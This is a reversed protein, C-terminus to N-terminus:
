KECLSFSCLWYLAVLPAVGSRLVLYLAHPILKWSFHSLCEHSAIFPSVCQVVRQRSVGRFGDAEWNRENDRHVIGYHLVRRKGALANMSAISVKEVTTLADVLSLLSMTGNPFLEAVYTCSSDNLAATTFHGCQEDLCVGGILTQTSRGQLNLEPDSFTYLMQGFNAPFSPALGCFNDGPGTLCWDDHVRRHRLLDLLVVSM